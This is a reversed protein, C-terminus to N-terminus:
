KAGRAKQPDLSVIGHFLDDSSDSAKIEVIYPWYGYHKTNCVDASCLTLALFDVNKKEGFEVFQKLLNKYFSKRLDIAEFSYSFADPEAYFGLRAASIMQKDPQLKTIIKGINNYLESVQQQYLVAGGYVGRKNDSAIIFTAEEKVESPLSFSQYVKLLGLFSNILVQNSQHDKPEIINFM